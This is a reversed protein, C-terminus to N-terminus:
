KKNLAGRIIGKLEDKSESGSLKTGTKSALDKITNDDLHNLLDDDAELQIDGNVIELFLVSPTIRNIKYNNNNEYEQEIKDLVDEHGLVAKIIITNDSEIYNITDIDSYKNQINKIDKEIISDDKNKEDESDDKAENLCEAKVAVTTDANNDIFLDYGDFTDFYTYKNSDISNVKKIDGYLTTHLIPDEDTNISEKRIFQIAM